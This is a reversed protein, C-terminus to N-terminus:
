DDMDGYEHYDEWLEDLTAQASPDHTKNRINKKIAEIWARSNGIIIYDDSDNVINEANDILENMADIIEEFEYIEKDEIM